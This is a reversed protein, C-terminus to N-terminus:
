TTPRCHATQAHGKRCKKSTVGTCLCRGLTLSANISPGVAVVRSPGRGAVEATACFCRTRSGSGRPARGHDGVCRGRRNGRRRRWRRRRCWGSCGDTVVSQNRVHCVPLRAGRRCHVVLVCVDEERKCDRVRPRGTRVVAVGSACDTARHRHAGAVWVENRVHLSGALLHDQRKAPRAHASRPVAHVLAPLRAVALLRVHEVLQLRNHVVLLEVSDVDVVLVVVLVPLSAGAEALTRRCLLEQTINGGSQLREDAVVEFNRVCRHVNIHHLSGPVVVHDLSHRPRNVKDHRLEVVADGLRVHVAKFARTSGCM